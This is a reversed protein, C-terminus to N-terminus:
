LNSLHRRSSHIVISISLEDETAIPIDQGKQGNIIESIRGSNIHLSPNARKTNIIGVIEQNNKGNAHLKKAIAIEQITLTKKIKQLM